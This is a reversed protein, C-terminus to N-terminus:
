ERIKPKSYMLNERIQQTFTGPNHTLKPVKEFDVKGKNDTILYLGVATNIVDQEHQPLLIGYGPRVVPGDVMGSTNQGMYPFYRIGQTRTRATNIDENSSFYEAFTDAVDRGSNQPGLCQKLYMTGYAVQSRPDWNRPPGHSNMLNNLNMFQEPVFAPGVRGEEEFTASAKQNLACARLWSYVLRPGMNHVNQGLTVCDRIMDGTPSAELVPLLREAKQMYPLLIDNMYERAINGNNKPDRDQDSQNPEDLSFQSYDAKRLIESLPPNSERKSEHTMAITALATIGVAAAVPLIYKAGAVLATRFKSSFHEQSSKFYNIFDDIDRFGGEHVPLFCRRILTRDTRSLGKMGYKIFRRHEERDVEMRPVSDGHTLAVSYEEGAIDIKVGRESPVLQYPFLQKGTRLFYITAGLSYLDTRPTARSPVGQLLADILNPSAFSTGGRTLMMSDEIDEIRAANQLDGVKAVGSPTIWINSPKIDRHLMRKDKHLYRVAEGLQGVIGYFKQDDKIPGVTQVMRELDTAGEYPEVNVRRGDELTFSDLVECIFPHAIENSATVEALDLDKKSRNVLTTISNPNVERKAVKLVVAREADGRKYKALYAERTSGEGFPSDQLLEYDRETIIRQDEPSLKNADDRITRLKTEM